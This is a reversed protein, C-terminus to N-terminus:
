HRAHPPHAPGGAGGIILDLSAMPGGDPAPLALRDAERHFVLLAGTLGQIAWFLGVCLGLWLHLKVLRKRM